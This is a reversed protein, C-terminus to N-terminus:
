YSVNTIDRTHDIKEAKIYNEIYYYSKVLKYIVQIFNIKNDFWIINDMQSYMMNNMEENELYINSFNPHKTSNENKLSTMLHTNWGSTHNNQPNNNVNFNVYDNISENIKNNRNDNIKNNGSNTKHGNKISRINKFYTHKRKKYILTYFYIAGEFMNKLYYTDGLSYIIDEFLYYSALIIQLFHTRILYSSEMHGRMIVAKIFQLFIDIHVYDNEKTLTKYVFICEDYKNNLIQTQM